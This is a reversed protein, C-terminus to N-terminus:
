QVNMIKSLLATREWKSLFDKDDRILRTVGNYIDFLQKNPEIKFEPSQSNVCVNKYGEIIFKPDLKITQYGNFHQERLSADIWSGLKDHMENEKIYTNKLKELSYKFNNDMAMMSEIDYGPVKNQEMLYTKQWSPSFVTLNTCAMNLHGRYTKLIPYRPADLGYLLGLVEKHNDVVNPLVAQIWVRNFTLDEQQDEDITIQDPTVVNIIYDLAVDKTQDFFKNCYEMPRLFSLEGGRGKKIITEKGQMLTEKTIQM